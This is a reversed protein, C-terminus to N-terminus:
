KKNETNTTDKLKEFTSKSDGPQGHGGEKPQPPAATTTAQGSSKAMEANAKATQESNM